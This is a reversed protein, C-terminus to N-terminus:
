VTRRIAQRMAAFDEATMVDEEKVTIRPPPPLRPTADVRRERSRREENKMWNNLFRANDKKAKAPNSELWSHAWQIQSRLDVNPYSRAWDLVLFDIKLALKLDQEFRRLGKLWSSM